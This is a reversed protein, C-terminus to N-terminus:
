ALSTVFGSGDAGTPASEKMMAHGAYVFGENLFRVIGGNSGDVGGSNVGSGSGGGGSNSPASRVDEPLTAVRGAGTRWDVGLGDSNQPLLLAKFLPDSDAHCLVRAICSMCCIICVSCATAHAAGTLTFHWSLAAPSQYRLRPFLQALMTGNCLPQVARPAGM